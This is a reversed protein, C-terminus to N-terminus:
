KSQKFLEEKEENTLSEYGSQNIKDLIADLRSTKRQKPSSVSNKTTIEKTSKVLYKDTAFIILGAIIGGFHAFYGGPNGLPIQILNFAVFFILIHILKFFGLFRIKIQYHPMLMSIYTMVSMVGASAGLLPTKNIYMGPFFRNSFLFFMGGLLVGALYSILLKKPQSFDLLISGFYFLLLMNFFLAIFGVHFFGYTLLTWPHQYFGTFNNPLAVYRLSFWGFAILIQSLLFLLVTLGILQSLRDSEKIINIIKDITQM